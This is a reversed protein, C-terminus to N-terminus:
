KAGISVVEAPHHKFIMSTESYLEADILDKFVSAISNEICKEVRKKNLLIEQIDKMYKIFFLEERKKERKQM